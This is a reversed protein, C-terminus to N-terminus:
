FESSCLEKLVSECHQKTQIKSAILFSNLTLPCLLKRMLVSSNLTKDEFDGKYLMIKRSIYVDLYSCHAVPSDKSLTLKRWSNYHNFKRPRKHVAIPNIQMEFCVFNPLSKYQTSWAGTEYMVPLDTKLQNLTYKHSAFYPPGMEGSIESQNSM